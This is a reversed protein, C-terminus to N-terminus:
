KGLIKKGNSIYLGKPSPNQVRRGQLDYVVSSAPSTTVQDTIDIVPTVGDASLCMKTVIMSSTGFSFGIMYIKSLDVQEKKSNTLTRLDIVHSKDTSLSKAFHTALFDDVNYVFLRSNASPKIKFDVMLYPYDTLDLGRHFVWGSFGDAGSSKITTGSSGSTVTGTKYLSPRFVSTSFDFLVINVPITLSLQKGQKNTLTATIHTEGLQQGTSLTTNSLSLWEPNAIEYQCACTVDHEVGDADTCYVHLKRDSAPLMTVMDGPVRLSVIDYDVENQYAELYKLMHQAYRRGIIRYGESDFHYQDGAKCGESSAVFCNPVANKLKNVAPIHNACVGGYEARVMEGAILPVETAQLGLEDLMRSYIRHVYQGWKEDGMNTEGQHILIGKIVGQQQAKKALDVLRRFPNNGYASAASTMYSPQGVIYTKCVDEDFMEISCGDVAVNIVGVSISDPLNAVMERGFYDAPCLGTEPRCLPPVATYWEGMKRDMKPFDVAAMMKFREPVETLDQTEIKGKGQMNSQGFCLYIHFNPDVSKMESENQAWGALCSLWLLMLGIRRKLM